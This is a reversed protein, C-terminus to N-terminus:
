KNIYDIRKLYCYKYKKHKANIRNDKNQGIWSNNKEITMTIINKDLKTQLM